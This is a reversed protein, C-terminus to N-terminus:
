KIDPIAQNLIENIRKSYEKSSKVIGLLVEPKSFDLAQDVPINFTDRYVRIGDKLDDSSLKKMENLAYVFEQNM